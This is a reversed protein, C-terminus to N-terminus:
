GGSSRPSRGYSARAARKGHEKSAEERLRELRARENASITVPQWLLAPHKARDIDREAEAVLKPASLRRTPDSSLYRHEVAWSCFAKLTALQQPLGLAGPGARRLQRLYAKVLMENLSPKQRRNRYTSFETMVAKNARYVAPPWAGTGAQLWLRILPGLDEGTATGPRDLKSSSALTEM